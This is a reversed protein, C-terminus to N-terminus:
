FKSISNKENIGNIVSSDLYTHPFAKKLIANGDIEWSVQTAEDGYDDRERKRRGKRRRIVDETM